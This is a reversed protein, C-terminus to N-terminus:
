PHEDPWLKRFSLMYETKVEGGDELLVTIRIPFTGWGRSRLAFRSEKDDVTRIPNPFTPHLQYEVERVLKM